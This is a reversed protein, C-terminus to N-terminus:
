HLRRLVVSSPNREWIVVQHTGSRHMEKLMREVQLGPLASFADFLREAGRATVPIALSPQEPQDLVWHAPKATHDLTVRDLESVAVAGGTLPGFYSIQGEVVQVVGPGGSGLRFRMRQAAVIAVIVSVAIVGWGLWSLFGVNGLAARAGLGFLLVAAILERWAWLQARAEPRIFSM